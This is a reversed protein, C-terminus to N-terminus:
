NQNAIIFCLALSVCFVGTTNTTFEITIVHKPALNELENHAQATKWCDHWCLWPERTLCFCVLHELSCWNWMLCSKYTVINYMYIDLLYMYKMLCAVESVYFTNQILFIFMYSYSNASLNQKIRWKRSNVISGKGSCDKGM